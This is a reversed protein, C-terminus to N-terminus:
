PGSRCQVRLVAIRARLALSPTQMATGLALSPDLMGLRQAKSARRAGRKRKPSPELTRNALIYAPVLIRERVNFLDHM